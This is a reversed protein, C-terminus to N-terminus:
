MHKHDMNPVLNHVPDSRMAACAPLRARDDQNNSKPTTTGLFLQGEFYEMAHALTSVPHGIGARGIFEFPKQPQAM